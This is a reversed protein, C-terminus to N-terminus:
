GQEPHIDIDVMIDQALTELRQRVTEITDGTALVIRATASFMKEGSMSGVFLETHLEDISAGAEALVASIDRVIGPHDIGSLSLEARLEGAGVIPAPASADQLTVMVGKDELAVLAAQMDSMRAPAASVRVIGAFEGGLRVMSSEMWNGGHDAVVEAVQQVIGPADRAVITLVFQHEM